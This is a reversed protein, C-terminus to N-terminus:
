QVLTTKVIEFSTLIPNSTWNTKSNKSLHNSVLRRSIHSPINMIKHMAISKLINSSNFDVITHMSPFPAIYTKWSSMSSSIKRIVLFPVLHKLKQLLSKVSLQYKSHPPTHCSPPVVLYNPVSDMVLCISRPTRRM